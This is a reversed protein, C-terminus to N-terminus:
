SMPNRALCCAGRKGRGRRRVFTDAPRAVDFVFAARQVSIAPSWARADPSTMIVEGLAVFRDGVWVVNSFDTGQSETLWTAGDRSSLVSGFEGVAVFRDGAWIVAFLPRNLPSTRATWSVGDSSTQIGALGVAAFSGLAPSWAVDFSIKSRTM